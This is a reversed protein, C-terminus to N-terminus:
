LEIESRDEIKEEAESRCKKQDSYRKTMEFLKRTFTLAAWAVAVRGSFLRQGIMAMNSLGQRGQEM